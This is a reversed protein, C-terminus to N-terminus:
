WYTIAFSDNDIFIFIELSTQKWFDISSYKEM